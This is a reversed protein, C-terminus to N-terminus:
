FFFFFLKSIVLKINVKIIVRGESLSLHTTMDHKRTSIYGLLIRFSTQLRARFGRNIRVAIYYHMNLGNVSALLADQYHDRGDATQCHWMLVLLLFYDWWTSNTKSKLKPLLTVTEEILRKPPSKKSLMIKQVTPVRWKSFVKSLTYPTYSSRPCLEGFSDQM